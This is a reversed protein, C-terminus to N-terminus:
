AAYGTTRLDMELGSGRAVPGVAGLEYAKDKPLVGVGITRQKVSYDNVLAPIVDAM